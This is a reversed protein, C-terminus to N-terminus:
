APPPPPPPLPSGPAPPAPTWTTSPPPPVWMPTGGAPTPPMPEAPPTRRARVGVVILVVGLALLLVALAAGLAQALMADGDPDRGVAIAFDTDDSVVTLRYTGPAEIAVQATSTGAFDTTDYSVGDAPDLTMQGGDDSVLTLEVRPPDDDGRDYTIGNGACDGGLDDTHGRTEVFFTFVAATDFDLTTTCGVPARAFQEVTANTTAGAVALSGVGVVVGAVAAGVGIWLLGGRAM